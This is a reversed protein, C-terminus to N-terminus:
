QARDAFVKRVSMMFQEGSTKGTAYDEASRIITRLALIGGVRNELDARLRQDHGPM